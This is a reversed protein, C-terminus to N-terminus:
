LSAFQRGDEVLQDVYKPRGRGTHQRSSAKIYFGSRTKVKNLQTCPPVVAMGPAKPQPFVTMECAREFNEFLSMM